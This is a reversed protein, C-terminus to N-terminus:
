PRSHALANAPIPPAALPSSFATSSLSMAIKASPTRGDLSGGDLGGQELRLLLPDFDGTRVMALWASFRRFLGVNKVALHLSGVRGSHSEDRQSRFTSLCPRSQSRSFSRTGKGERSARTYTWEEEWPPVDRTHPVSQTSAALELVHASFCTLRYQYSRKAEPGDSM